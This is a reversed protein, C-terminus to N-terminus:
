AAKLARVLEALRPPPPDPLTALFAAVPLPAYVCPGAMGWCGYWPWIMGAYLFYGGMGESDPGDTIWHGDNKRSLAQYDM